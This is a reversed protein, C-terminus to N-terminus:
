DPKRGSHQNDSTKKKNKTKQKKNKTKQKKIKYHSAPLLRRLLLPLLCACNLKPTTTITKTESALSEEV